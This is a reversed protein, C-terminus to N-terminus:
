GIKFPSNTALWEIAQSIREPLESAIQEPPQNPLDQVWQVVTIPGETQSGETQPGKTQIPWWNGPVFENNTSNEIRAFGADVLMRNFCPTEIPQGQSSSLYAVCVLNGNPDRGYLDDIDLFVRKNMLVAFAFDKANTGSPTTIASSEIDALKIREVNSMIRSDAQEIYLDFSTGDVINNVIGYSEYPYAAALHQLILLVMCITLHLPKKSNM